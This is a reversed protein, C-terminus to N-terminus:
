TATADMRQTATAAMLWKAPLQNSTTSAHPHTHSKVVSEVGKVWLSDRTMLKHEHTPTHPPGAHTQTIHHPARIQAHATHLTHQQQMDPPPFSQAGAMVLPSPFSQAGAM